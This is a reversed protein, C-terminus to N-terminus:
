GVREKAQREKGKRNEKMEKKRRERREGSGEWRGGKREAKGGEESREEKASIYEIKALTCNSQFWLWGRFICRVVKLVNNQM